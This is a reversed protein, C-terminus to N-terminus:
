PKAEMGHNLRERREREKRIQPKLIEFIESLAADGVLQKENWIKLLDYIRQFDHLKLIVKGQNM